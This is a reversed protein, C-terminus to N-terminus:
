DESDIHLDSFLDIASSEPFLSRLQNKLESLEAACMDREASLSERQDKVSAESTLSQRKKMQSSDLAMTQLDFEVKAIEAKLTAIEKELWSIKEEDSEGVIVFNVDIDLGAMVHITEIRNLIDMLKAESRADQNIESRSIARIEHFKELLEQKQNESLNSHALKDPHCLRECRRRLVQRREESEAFDEASCGGIDLRGSEFLLAFHFDAEQEKLVRENKERLQELRLSIESISLTSDTKKLGIKSKLIEISAKIRRLPLDIDGFIKSYKLDKEKSFLCAKEFEANVSDLLHLYEQWILKLSIFKESGNEIQHIQLESFLVLESSDLDRSHMGEIHVQDVLGAFGDKSIKFNYKLLLSFWEDLKHSSSQKKCFEQWTEVRERILDKPRSDPHKVDIQAVVDHNKASLFEQELSTQVLMCSIKVVDLELFRAIRALTEDQFWRIDGNSESSLIKKITTKTYPQISDNQNRSFVPDGDDELILKELDEAKKPKGNSNAFKRRINDSVTFHM